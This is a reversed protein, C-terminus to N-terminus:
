GATGILYVVLGRAGAAGIDVDITIEADDALAADSIVAPTAATTSTKEGMDISLRTSLVSAGSENIDILIISGPSSAEAATALSARVETLTMAFPMRFTYAAAQTIIETALDSVAVMLSVTPETTASSALGSTRKDVYSEITSGVTYAIYLPTRGATFGTTNTSVTGATTAEIYNATSPSGGSALAVTGDAVTTLTGGSWLEGGYYGWTLGSCTLPNRGFLAAPALAAVVDNFVTEKAYQGTKITPLATTM